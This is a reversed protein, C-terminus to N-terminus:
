KDKELRSRELFGEVVEIIQAATFDKLRSTGCLLTSLDYAEGLGANCLVELVELVSGGKDPHLRGIAKVLDRRDGEASKHCPECLCWLTDSDYEWPERKSEYYGHHVSLTSQNDGCSECAFGAREMVELRKRQWRPDRLKESYSLAKAAVKGM